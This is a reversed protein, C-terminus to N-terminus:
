LLLMARAEFSDSLTVSFFNRPMKSVAPSTAFPSVTLVDKIYLPLMLFKNSDRPGIIVDPNWKIVDPIINIISLPDQNYQFIKYTTLLGDSKAQNLALNLGNLYYKKYKTTVYKQYKFNDIIAIKITEKAYGYAGILVLTLVTIIRTINNM